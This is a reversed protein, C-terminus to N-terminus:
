RLEEADEELYADRSDTSPVSHDRHHLVLDDLTCSPECLLLEEVDQCYCLSGRPDESDVHSSM